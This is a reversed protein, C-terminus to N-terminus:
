PFHLQNSCIQSVYIRNLILRNEYNLLTFNNLIIWIEISEFKFDFIKDFHSNILM